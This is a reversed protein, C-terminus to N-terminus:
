AASRDRATREAIDLLATTAAEAALGIVIGVAVDSLYHARTPLQAGTVAMAGLTAPLALEPNDRSAARAVAVVGATHGSPMSRLQSKRSKGRKLEYEGDEAARHPRTRDVRNKIVTKILTALRHAALMRVGTRTMARDGTVIGAGAVLLNLVLLPPQDGAEGVVHLAAATKSDPDVDVADAVAVDVQEIPSADDPAAKAVKGTKPKESRTEGSKTKGSKTKGSKRKATSKATM